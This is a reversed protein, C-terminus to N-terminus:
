GRSPLVAQSPSCSSSSPCTSLGRPPFATLANPMAPHCLPSRCGQRDAGVATGKGDVRLGVSLRPVSHRSRPSRPPWKPSTVEHNVPASSLSIVPTSPRRGEHHLAWPSSRSNFGRKLRDTLTISLATKTIAHWGQVLLPWLYSFVCVCVGVRYQQDFLCASFLNVCRLHSPHVSTHWWSALIFFCPM